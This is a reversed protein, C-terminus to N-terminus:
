LRPSPSRNGASYHSLHAGIFRIGFRNRFARRFSMFPVGMVARTDLGPKSKQWCSRRASEISTASPSLFPSLWWIQCPQTSKTFLWTHCPWPSIRRSPHNEVYEISAHAPSHEEGLVLIKQRELPDDLLRQTGTPHPQTSITQHGIMPMKDNPRLPIAIKGRKHLVHGVRVHFPPLLMTVLDAVPLTFPDPTSELESSNVPRTDARAVIPYFVLVIPQTLL